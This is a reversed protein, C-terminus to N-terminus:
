SLIILLVGLGIRIIRGLQWFFKKDEVLAISMAGDFILIWGIIQYIM